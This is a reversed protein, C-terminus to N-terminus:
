PVKMKFSSRDVANALALLLDTCALSSYDDLGGTSMTQFAVNRTPWRPPTSSRDIPFTLVPCASSLLLPPVHCCKNHRHGSLEKCLFLSRQALTQRVAIPKSPRTTERAGRPYIAPHTELKMQDRGAPEARGSLSGRSKRLADDLSDLRMTQTSQKPKTLSLAEQKRLHFLTGRQATHHLIVIRRQTEPDQSPGGAQSLDEQEYLPRMSGNTMCTAEFRWALEAQIWQQGALLLLILERHLQVTLKVITAHHIADLDAAVTLM